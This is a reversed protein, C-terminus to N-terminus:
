SLRVTRTTIMGYRFLGRTDLSQLFVFNTLVVIIHLAENRKKDDTGDAAHNMSRRSLTTSLIGIFRILKKGHSIDVIIIHGFFGLKVRLTNPTKFGTNPTFRRTKRLGPPATSETYNFFTSATKTFTTQYTRVICIVKGKIHVTYIAKM